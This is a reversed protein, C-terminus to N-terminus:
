FEEGAPEAGDTDEVAPKAASAPRRTTNLQVTRAPSAPGDGIEFECAPDGDLMCHHRQVPSAVLESFAAREMDCLEPHEHALGNYPCTFVNLRLNRAPAVAEASEAVVGERSLFEALRHVREAPPGDGISSRAAEAMRHSVRELIARAKNEGAVRVIEEMLLRSVDPGGAGFFRRARESVAFVGAPRGPGVNRRTRLLWGEGVLRTLQARIATATVGIETGLESVTMPGHRLLVEIIRQAPSDPPQNPLTM